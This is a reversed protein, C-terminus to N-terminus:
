RPRGSALMSILSVGFRASQKLTRPIAYSTAAESPLSTFGSSAAGTGACLGTVISTASSAPAFTGRKAPRTISPTSACAAVGMQIASRRRRLPTRGILKRTSTVWYTISSSPWGMCAKSRSVNVPGTTTRGARASSCAVSKSPRVTASSSSKRTTDSLRSPRAERATASPPMM